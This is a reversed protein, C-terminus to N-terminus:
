HCVVVKMICRHGNQSKNQLITIVNNIKVKTANIIEITEENDNINTKVTPQESM